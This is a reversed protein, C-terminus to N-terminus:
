ADLQLDAKPGVDLYLDTSADYYKGEERDWYVVQGQKWLIPGELDDRPYWKRGWVDTLCREDAQKKEAMKRAESVAVNRLESILQILEEKEIPVDNELLSGVTEWAEIVEKRLRKSM